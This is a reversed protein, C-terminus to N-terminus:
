GTMAVLRLRAAWDGGFADAFSGYDVSTTLRGTGALGDERALELVVGNRWAAPVMSRDYVRVRARSVTQAGIAGGLWVPLTGARVLRPTVSSPVRLGDLTDALPTVEARATGPAPWSVPRAKAKSAAQSLDLPRAKARVPTGHVAPVPPASLTRPGAAHAPAESLLSATLALTLAVAVARTGRRRANASFRVLRWATV